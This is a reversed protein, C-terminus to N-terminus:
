GVGLLARWAEAWPWRREIRALIRELIGPVQLATSLPDGGHQISQMVASIRGLLPLM